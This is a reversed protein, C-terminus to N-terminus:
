AGADLETIRECFLKYLYVLKRQIAINGCSIVCVGKYHDYTKKGASRKDFAAYRFASLPLNLVKSWYDKLAFEDQDMRLHLDCRIQDSTVNYNRALVALVFKLIMPDSSAISTTGSKAGEGFYLMAFALDLLDNNVELRELVAKADREAKLLRLAKSAQHSEVAKVRARAWGDHRNRMLKTRQDESLEIDKFWGSLTSRPIGLKREIVTMSTGIKRLAIAEEKLHFWKSKM